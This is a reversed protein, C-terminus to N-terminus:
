STAWRCCAWAASRPPHHKPLPRSFHLNPQSPDPGAQAHVHFATALLGAVAGRLSSIGCEHSSPLVLDEAGVEKPPCLVAAAGGRALGGVGHGLAGWGGGAGPACRRPPTSCSPRSGPPCRPTSASRSARRSRTRASSWCTWCSRHHLRTMVVPAAPTRPRHASARPSCAHSDRLCHTYKCM